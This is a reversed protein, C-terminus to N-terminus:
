LVRVRLTARGCWDPCRGMSCAPGTSRKPASGLATCGNAPRQWCPPWHVSARASSAPSNSACGGPSPPSAGGSSVAITLPGDRHVSPVIFTCHAPDDASNVWIGLAEAEASVTGDVHPDGTASIVLRFGAVDGPAYSRRELRIRSPGLAVLEACISPAIVTVEAGCAVLGQVKRAAVRGGGVVLCRRGSVNLTVPYFDGTMLARDRSPEAASIPGASWAPPWRPSPRSTSSSSAAPSATSRTPTSPWRPPPARAPRRRHREGDARDRRQGDLENVDFIGEVSEVVAPTVRTTHKLKLRDGAVLPRDHFWCVTAEFHRDGDAAGRAVLHPRGTLRRHRREAQDLGVARGRGAPDAGDATEISRVTSYQGEPLVIVPDGTRFPGGNVMGAYSRGGGPQRLVWQVPLRGGNGQRLGHQSAWGGAQASELADLVTPGDYWPAADSREVVNDGNLASIPIM